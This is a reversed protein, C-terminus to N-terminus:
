NTRINKTYWQRAVNILRTHMHAHHCMPPRPVVRVGCIKVAAVAVDDFVCDPKRGTRKLAGSTTVAASVTTASRNGSVSPMESKQVRDVSHICGRALSRPM